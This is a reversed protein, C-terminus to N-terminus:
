LAAPTIKQQIVEYLDKTSDGGKRTEGQTPQIDKSDVRSTGGIVGDEAGDQGEPGGDCPSWGGM